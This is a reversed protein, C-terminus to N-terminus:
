YANLRHFGQCARLSRGWGPRKAFDRLLDRTERTFLPSLRDNARGLAQMSNRPLGAPFLRDLGPERKAASKIVM